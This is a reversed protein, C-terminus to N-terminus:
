SASPILRRESPMIICLYQSFRSSDSTCGKRMLLWLGQCICQVYVHECGGVYKTLLHEIACFSFTHKWKGVVQTTSVYLVRCKNYWFYFYLTPEIKTVWLTSSKGANGVKGWPKGRKRNWKKKDKHSHRMAHTPKMQVKALHKWKV